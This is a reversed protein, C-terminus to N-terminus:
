PATYNVNWWAKGQSWAQIPSHAVMGLFRNPYRELLLRCAERMLEADNTKPVLQAQSGSSYRSCEGIFFPYPSKNPPLLDDWRKIAAAVSDVYEQATQCNWLYYHLDIIKVQPIAYTPPIWSQYREKLGVGSSAWLISPHSSRLVQHLQQWYTGSGGTWKNFGKQGFVKWAQHYNPPNINPMVWLLDPENWAEM